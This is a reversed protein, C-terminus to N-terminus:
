KAKIEMPKLEEKIEEDKNLEDQTNENDATESDWRLIGEDRSCNWCRDCDEDIVNPECDCVECAQCGGFTNYACKMQPCKVKKM